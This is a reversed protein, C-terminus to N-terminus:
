GNLPAVAADGGIPMWLRVTTGGPSTEVELQGGLRAARREMSTLGRGRPAATDYGCGDDGIEVFVGRRADPATRAGTRVVITTARAHKVVNTVAEQVVRMVQLAMQPGFAAIPPVDRVEWRMALAHQLLRPELRARVSGLIALLECDIPDLSDIVLRLDDLASRLVEAVDAAAGDAGREVLALATVLQGGVGDHVDQMIREREAAVARDRELAQLSAYNRELEAHKEEVRQELTRALAATAQVSALHNTLLQWAIFGMALLPLYPSLLLGLPSTGAIVAAVDHLAGVVVAATPVIVTLRGQRTAAGRLGLRMIYFTMTVVVGVSVVMNAFTWVPPVTALAVLLAVATGVLLAELQPRRHNLLRHFGLVFTVPCCVLASATSWEWLRTPIRPEHVFADANSWAWCVLAVAIWRLPGFAPTSLSFALLLLGAALTGGGIVQVFGVQWWTRQTFLPRVAELPGVYFSRLHGPATPEVVVHVAVINDGARLLPAPVTLLLPRNWNRPLPPDMSGGDGVSVGNVFVAANQVVRPLYVAWPTGPAERLAVVARYWAARHQRRSEMRWTDPLSVPAWGPADVSPPTEALDFTRLAVDVLRVERSKGAVCGVATAAFVIVLAGRVGRDYRQAGPTQWIGGM